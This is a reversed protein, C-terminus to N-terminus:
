RVANLADVMMAVRVMSKVDHVRICDAGNWVAVANAAATGEVRGEAPLDLVAGITSKNSVGILIPRGFKKFEGLRVVIELNHEVTKGFGFGPDLWISEESIGREVAFSIREEFFACIDDVVDDYRPDMQMTKPTSQMHMLVCECGAEAIVGAMRADGRLATIDNVMSVGCALAREATEAHYTDISVPVDLSQLNELVPMVRSQEADPGVHDAGPRSSEGGVDILDAGESVLRAAHQVADESSEHIGGDYFSDPTVNLIGMVLTKGTLLDNISVSM